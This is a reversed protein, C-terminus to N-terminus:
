NHLYETGVFIWFDNAVMTTNTVCFFLELLFLHECYFYYGLYIGM